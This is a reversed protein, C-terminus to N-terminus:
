TLSTAAKNKKQKPPAIGEVAAHLVSWAVRLADKMPRNPFGGETAILRADLDSVAFSAGNVIGEGGDRLGYYLVADIDNVSAIGHGLWVPNGESDRGYSQDFESYIEFISKDKFVGNPLRQGCERQLSAAGLASLWFRYTKGAFQLTICTEDM